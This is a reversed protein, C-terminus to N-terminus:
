NLREITSYIGKEIISSYYYIKKKMIRAFDIELQTNIGIYGNPDIVFIAQSDRIKIFHINALYAKYEPSINLLRSVDYVEVSRVFWGRDILVKIVLEFESKFRTSGCLTIVKM